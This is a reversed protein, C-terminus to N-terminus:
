YTLCSTQRQAVNIEQQLAPPAEVIPNLPTKGSVRERREVVNVTKRPSTFTTM